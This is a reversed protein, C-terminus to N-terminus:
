ESRLATLPDARRAPVWSALAAAAALLLAVGAFTVADTPAVGFLLGALLRGAAFAGTLGLALGLLTWSMGQAVVGALVQGRRAGLAMRIGIEHTRQGVGYAVVGYLGVVALTLALAGFLGLLTTLFRPRAVDEAVVQALAAVDSIPLDRDFGWIAERVAGAVALPDAATRLFLKMDSRPALSQPIYVASGPEAALGGSRVDGVVGVVELPIEGLLLTKGVAEEGGWLQRAFARNVVV